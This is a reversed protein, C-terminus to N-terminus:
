HKSFFYWLTNLSEVINWEYGLSIEHFDGDMYAMNWQYELFGVHFGWLDGYFM